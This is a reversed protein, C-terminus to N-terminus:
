SMGPRTEGEERAELAARGVCLPRALSSRPGRARRWGTLFHRPADRPPPVRRERQRAGAAAASVRRAGRKGPRAARLRAEQKQSLPPHPLLRAEAGRQPGPPLRM